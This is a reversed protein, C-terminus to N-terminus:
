NSLQIEEEIKMLKVFIEEISDRENQSLTFKQSALLTKLMAENELAEIDFKKANEIIKAVRPDKIVFSEYGM